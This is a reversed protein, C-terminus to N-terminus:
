YVRGVADDFRAATAAKEWALCAVYELLVAEEEVSFRDSGGGREISRLAGLLGGAVVVVCANRALGSM